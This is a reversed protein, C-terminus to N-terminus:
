ESKGIDKNKRSFNLYGIIMCIYFFNFIIYYIAWFLGVDMRQYFIVLIQIQFGSSFGLAFYGLMNIKLDKVTLNLCEDRALDIGITWPVASTNQEPGQGVVWTDTRTGNYQGHLTYGAGDIIINSTDVIIQGYFNSSFTYTNGNKQISNTRPYLTGNRLIRIIQYEEKGPNSFIILSFVVGILIIMLIGM